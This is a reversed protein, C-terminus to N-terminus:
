DNEVRRRITGGESLMFSEQKLRADLEGDYGAEFGAEAALAKLRGFIRYERERKEM